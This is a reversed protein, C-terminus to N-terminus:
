ELNNQLEIAEDKFLGDDFYTTALEEHHRAFLVVADLLGHLASIDERKVDVNNIRDEAFADLGAIASSLSVASTALDYSTLKESM